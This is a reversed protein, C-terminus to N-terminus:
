RESLKGASVHRVTAQALTEECFANLNTCTLFTQGRGEVWALLHSRRKDDLDSMVDDLLMVPKEGVYEEMLRHEALKLSLTVTRQQGQSGYVRADMGDILFQLDDRQPGVLTTGRRMEDRKCNEIASLFAEELAATDESEPLSLSPLYLIELNEKSDTLERHIEAALPALREVFFRRKAMLPAGFHAIQADWAELGSERVPRERLEKLLRNRQELSKKYSALDYVYKPSVQAIEMNLFRRRVSPDSNVIGLDISGFYVANLQGLLDVVRPRKAGNVRVAKHDNPFIFLDLQVDGERERAVEALVHASEAPAGEEQRVMESERSARLSKTTALLQVAELLNSKGQANEGVLINLGAGPDFELEAYNRFDRLRLNTLRM